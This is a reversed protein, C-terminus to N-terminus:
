RRSSCCQPLHSLSPVAACCKQIPRICNGRQPVAQWVSLPLGTAPLICVAGVQNHDWPLAPVFGVLHLRAQMLRHLGQVTLLGEKQLPRRHSHDQLLAHQLIQTWVDEPLTDTRRFFRWDLGPHSICCAQQPVFRASAAFLQCHYLQHGCLGWCTQASGM